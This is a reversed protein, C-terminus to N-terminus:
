RRFSELLAQLAGVAQSVVEPSPVPLRLYPEGTQEDRCVRGPLAPKKEGEATPAAGAAPAAPPAAAPPTALQQLLALGVQL